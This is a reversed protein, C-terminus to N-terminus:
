KLLFIILEKKKEKVTQFDVNSIDKLIIAERVVLTPFKTCIIM